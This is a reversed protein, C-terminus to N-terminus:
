HKKLSLSLATARVRGEATLREEKTKYSIGQRISYDGVMPRSHYELLFWKKREKDYIYDFGCIIGLESKYKEHVNKSAKILEYFQESNIGHVDLLSKEFNSYNNQGILINKGGSLTNSVISKTTLPYIKSLLYGLLTTDDVYTEPENYKLSAYLLDNSSSTLVRVTTNFDSPTNIYEQVSFNLNLYKDYDICCKIDNHNTLLFLNKSLLFKIASILNEYDEETNILFKERGGNQNENKLVFPLRYKYNILDQYSFKVTNPKVIANKMLLDQIKKDILVRYEDNSKCQYDERRGTLYITSEKSDCINKVIKYGKSLLSIYLKPDIEMKLYISQGRSYPLDKYSIIKKM